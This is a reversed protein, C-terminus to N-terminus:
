ARHEATSPARIEQHGSSHHERLPALRAAAPLRFRLNMAASVTYQLFLPGTACNPARKWPMSSTTLEFRVLDVLEGFLKRMGLRRWNGCLERLDLQCGANNFGWSQKREDPQSSCCTGCRPRPGRIAPKRW